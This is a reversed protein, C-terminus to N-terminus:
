ITETAATYESIIASGVEGSPLYQNALTALADAFVMQSKTFLKGSNNKYSIIVALGFEAATESEAWDGFSLYMPTLVSGNYEAGTAPTLDSCGAITCFQGLETDSYPSKGYPTAVERWKAKSTADCSVTLVRYNVGELGLGALVVTVDFSAPLGWTNAGATLINYMLTGDSIFFDKINNTSEIYPLQFCMAYKNAEPHPNEGTSPQNLRIDNTDINLTGNAMLMGKACGEARECMLKNAVWTNRGWNQQFFANFGSQNANRTFFSNAVVKLGRFVAVMNNFKARQLAQPSTKPNNINKVYTRNRQEGGARYFVTEGLKGSANAWFLSRKSM